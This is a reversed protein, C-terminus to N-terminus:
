KKRLLKETYKALVDFELNVIDGPKLQGLSSKELTIPILCLEIHDDRDENITLSVGNVAISGKYVVYKQFPEPIAIKMFTVEGQPDVGLVKGVTDVHGLVYHGGMFGNPKTPWELNIKRGVVYQSIATKKITEPSVFFHLFGDDFSSASLCVGDVAISEGINTSHIDMDTAVALRIGNEVEKMGVIRGLGVIGTFV